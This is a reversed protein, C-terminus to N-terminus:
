SGEKSRSPTKTMWNAYEPAVSLHSQTSKQRDNIVALRAQQALEEWAIPGSPAIKGTEAGKIRDRGEFKAIDLAESAAKLLPEASDANVPFAAEGISVTVVGIGAVSESRIRNRLREAVDCAASSSTEPLVIGFEAGGTRCVVDIERLSSQLCRAIHRIAEDGKESGLHENLLALHDIDVLLLGLEHNHRHSRDIEKALTQDFHARNYLGTHVDIISTATASEHKLATNLATSVQVALSELLDIQERHFARAEPSFLMMVGLQQQQHVLPLALASAFQAGGAARPLGGFPSRFGDGIYETKGSRLASGALTDKLSLDFDKLSSGELGKYAALRMSSNEGEFLLIASYPSNGLVIATDASIQLVDSVQLAHSSLACSTKYLTSLREREYESRGFLISNAIALAVVECTETLFDAMGLISSNNVDILVAGVLLSSSTLPIALQAASGERQMIVASVEPAESPSNATVTARKQVVYKLLSETSFPMVKLDNLTGQSYGKAAMLKLALSENDSLFIAVKAGGALDSIQMVSSDLVDKLRLSSLLTKQM